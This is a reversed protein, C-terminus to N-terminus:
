SANKAICTCVGILKLYNLVHRLWETTWVVLALGFRVHKHVVAVTLPARANWVIGIDHVQALFDWLWCRCLSSNSSQGSPMQSEDTGLWPRTHVTESGLKLQFPVHLPFIRSMPLTSRAQRKAHWKKNRHKQRMLFSASFSFAPLLLMM